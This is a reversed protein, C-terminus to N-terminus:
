PAQPQSKMEEVTQNVKQLLQNQVDQRIKEIEGPDFSRMQDAITILFKLDIAKIITLGSKKYSRYANKLMQEGKVAEYAVPANKLSLVLKKAIPFTVYHM